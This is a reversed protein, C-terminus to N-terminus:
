NKYMLFKHQLIKLTKVFTYYWSDVVRTDYLIAKGDSNLIQMEGVLGESVVLIKVIQIIKGKWFTM